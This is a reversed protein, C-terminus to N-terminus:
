HQLLPVLTLCTPLHQGAAVSNVAEPLSHDSAYGLASEASSFFLGLVGLANGTARGSKGSMNLLRTVRLRMSNVAVEPQSRFADTVGKAGGLVAGARYCPM